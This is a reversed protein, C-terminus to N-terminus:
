PRPDDVKRWGLAADPISDASGRAPNAPVGVVPRVRNALERLVQSRAQDLIRSGKVGKGGRHIGQLRFLSGSPIAARPKPSPAPVDVPAELRVAGDDGIDAVIVGQVEPITRAISDDRVLRQRPRSRAATGAALLKEVAANRRSALMGRFFWGWGILSLFALAGLTLNWRRDKWFEEALDLPPAPHGISVAVAPALPLEEVAEAKELWVLRDDDVAVWHQTRDVFPPAGDAPGPPAGDAPVPFVAAVQGAADVLWGRWAVGDLRVPEFLGTLHLALERADPRPHEDPATVRVRLTWDRDRTGDNWVFERTMAVGVVGEAANGGLSLLEQFDDEVVSLSSGAPLLAALEPSSARLASLARDPDPRSHAIELYNRVGQFGTPFQGVERRAAAGVRAKELGARLLKYVADMVGRVELRLNREQNRRLTLRTDALAQAAARSREVLDRAEMRAYSELRLASTDARTQDAAVKSVFLWVAVGLLLTMGLPATIAPWVRMARATTRSGTAM